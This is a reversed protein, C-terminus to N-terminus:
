VCIIYLCGVTACVSMKGRRRDAAWIELSTHMVSSCSGRPPSHFPKRCLFSAIYDKIFDECCGDSTMSHILRILKGGLMKLIAAILLVKFSTSWTSRNLNVGLLQLNLSILSYYGGHAVVRMRISCAPRIEENTSWSWLASARITFIIVECFIAM